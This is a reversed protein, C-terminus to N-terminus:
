VEELTRNSTEQTTVTASPAAVRWTGGEIRLAMGHVIARAVARRAAALVRGYTQRSIGMRAAGAAQGLGEVDSLRLAEYGDFSLYVEALQTMPVGRPKFDLVGPVAQVFRCKRPRPM